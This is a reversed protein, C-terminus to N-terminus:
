REASCRGAVPLAPEGFRERHAQRLGQEHVTRVADMPPVARGASPDFATQPNSHVYGQQHEHESGIALIGVVILAAIVPPRM